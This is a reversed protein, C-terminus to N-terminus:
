HYIYVLLSAYILYAVNTIVIYQITDTFTSDVLTDINASMLGIFILTQFFLYTTLEERRNSNLYLVFAMLISALYFELQVVANTNSELIALIFVSLIVFILIVDNSNQNRNLNISLLIVLFFIISVIYIIEDNITLYSQNNNLKMIVFFPIILFYNWFEIKINKINNITLKGVLIFGLIVYPQPNTFLNSEGFISIAVILSIISPTIIERLNNQIYDLYILLASFFILLITTSTIIEHTQFHSLSNDLVSSNLEFVSYNDFIHLLWISASQAMITISQLRYDSTKFASLTFIITILGLALFHPLVIVSQDSVTMLGYSIVLGLNSFNTAIQSQIDNAKISSLLSTTVYLLYIITSLNFNIFPTEIHTQEVFQYLFVTLAQSYIIKEQLFQKAKLLIQVSTISILVGIVVFNPQSIFDVFIILSIVLGHYMYTYFEVQSKNSNYLSVLLYVGAFSLLGIDFMDFDISQLSFMNERPYLTMFFWPVISSALYIYSTNKNKIKLPIAVFALSILILISLDAALYRSSEAFFGNVSILVSVSILLLYHLNLNEKNKSILAVAVIFFIILSINQIYQVFGVQMLSTLILVVAQYPITLDNQAFRFHISFPILAAIILFGHDVFIMDSDSFVKTLAFFITVSTIFFPLVRIRENKMLDENITLFLGVVITIFLVSFPSVILDLGSIEYESFEYNTIKSIIYISPLIVTHTAFFYFYNSEDHTKIIQILFVIVLTAYLLLHIDSLHDVIWSSGDVDEVTTTIIPILFFNYIFPLITLQYIKSLIVRVLIVAALIVQILILEFVYSNSSSDSKFYWFFLSSAYTLSIMIEMFNSSIVDSLGKRIIFLSMYFILITAAHYFPVNIIIAAISTNLLLLILLIITIRNDIISISILYYFTVLACVLLTLSILIQHNDFRDLPYIFLSLIGVTVNIMILLYDRFKNLLDLYSQDITYQNSESKKV